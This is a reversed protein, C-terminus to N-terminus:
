RLVHSSEYGFCSGKKTVFSLPCTVSATMEDDGFSSADEDEDYDAEDESAELSPSPSAVFGGLRADMCQLQTM